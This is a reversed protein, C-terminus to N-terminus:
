PMIDKVENHDPSKIKEVKALNFLAIAAIILWIVNVFASPYAGHYITNIILFLSGTANLGQYVKRNIKKFEFSVMIYAAIVELSGIWGIADVLINM